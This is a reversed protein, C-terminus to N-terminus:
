GSHSTPIYEGRGGLVSARNRASMVARRPGYELPADSITKVAVRWLPLNRVYAGSLVVPMAVNTHSPRWGLYTIPSSTQDPVFPTLTLDLPIGNWCTEDVIM